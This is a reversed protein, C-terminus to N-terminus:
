AGDYTCVLAAVPGQFRVHWVGQSLPQAECAAPFVGAAQEAGAPLTLVTDGTTEASAGKRWLLVLLEGRAPSHIACAKIAAETRMGADDLFVGNLYFAAHRKRFAVMERLLAFFVPDELSFWDVDFPKGQIFSHSLQQIDRSMGTVIRGKFTYLFQEPISEGIQWTWEEGHGQEVDYYQGFREHCGECWTFFDPNLRRHTARIGRLTRAVGPLYNNAPTSHDHDKRYCFHGCNCSIQDVQASHAGYDTILRAIVATLHRVYSEQAPCVVAYRSSTGYTEIYPAGTRDRCLADGRDAQGFTSNPDVLRGNTYLMARGGMADIERIAQKLEQATGQVPDPEYDPYLTDHGNNPWGYVYLTDLGAEAVRRYLTPWQSYTFAPAKGEERSLLGVWGQWATGPARMWAPTDPDSFFPRMRAAYVDAAAHWDGRLDARACVPSTWAGARLFPYHTVSLEVAYRGTARAHFTMTDDGTAYAAVYRCAQPNHLVMYQMAMISPYRYVVEDGQGCQIYDYVWSTGKAACYQRIDQAPRQLNDGWPTAMLLADAMTLNPNPVIPYRVSTLTREGEAEVSLTSLHEDGEQWTRRALTLVIGPAAYRYRAEQPSQWLLTCDQPGIPADQQEDLVLCFVEDWM